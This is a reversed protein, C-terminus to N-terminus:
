RLKNIIELAAELQADRGASLDDISTNVVIHPTVGNIYYDEEMGSNSYARQGSFSVKLGSPLTATNIAGSIGASNEGIIVGVGRHKVFDLFIEENSINRPGSLFIIHEDPTKCMPSVYVARYSPNKVEPYSSKPIYDPINRYPLDPAIYQLIERAIFGSTRKRMDIIVYDDNTRKELLDGIATFSTNSLNIYCINDDIWRSADGNSYYNQWYLQFYYGKPISPVNLILRKGSRKILCRVEASDCPMPSQYLWSSSTHDSASFLTMEEQAYKAVNKKDATVLIDGPKLQPDMSELVVAKDEIYAIVAPLVNQRLDISENPYYVHADQLGGLMRKLVRIGDDGELVSRVAKKLELDWDMGSESLYPSFYRIVNWIVIIDAINREEESYEGNQNEEMKGAPKDYGDYLLLPIHAYLGDAVPLNILNRSETDKYVENRCIATLGDESELYHYTRYGLWCHNGVYDYGKTCDLSYIEKGSRTYIRVSQVTMKGEGDPFIGWNIYRSSKKDPLELTMTVKEWEQGLEETLPEVRYLPTIYEETNTWTCFHFCGKIPEPSDYARCIVELRVNDTDSEESRVYGTFAFKSTNKTDYPRNTRRSIYDHSEPGLDVGLHQWRIPKRDSHDAAYYKNIAESEPAKDVSLMPIMDDFVSELSDALEDSDRCDSVRSVGEVALKNWDTDAAEDSPVFWRAVGYTKAFSVINDVRKELSHGFAEVACLAFALYIVLCKNM